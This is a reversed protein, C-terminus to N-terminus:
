TLEKAISDFIARANYDEGRNRTSRNVLKIRNVMREIFAASFVRKSNDVPKGTKIASVSRLMAEAVQFATQPDLTCWTIPNPFKLVVHGDEEGVAITNTGESV